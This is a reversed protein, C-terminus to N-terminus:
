KLKKMMLPMADSMSMKRIHIDSAELIEKPVMYKMISYLYTNTAVSSYYIPAVKESPKSLQKYESTSLSLKSGRM